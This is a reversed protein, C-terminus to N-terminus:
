NGSDAQVNTALFTGDARATGKVQITWGVRLSSLSRADGQYTTSSTVVVTVSAGNTANVVFQGASTNVSSVSGQLDVLQGGGSSPPASTVNPQPTATASAPRTSGTTATTAAAGTTVSPTTASAAGANILAVQAPHSTMLFAAIASVGGFLLLGILAVLVRSRFFTM